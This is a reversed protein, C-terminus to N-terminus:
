QNNIAAAYLAVSQKRREASESQTIEHCRRQLPLSLSVTRQICTSFGHGNHFSDVDPIGFKQNAKEPSGTGIIVSGNAQSM